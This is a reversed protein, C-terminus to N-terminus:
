DERAKDNEWKEKINNEQKLKHVKDILEENLVQIKSLEEGKNKIEEKLEDKIKNTEEM